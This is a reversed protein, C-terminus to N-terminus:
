SVAMPWLRSTPSWLSPSSTDQPKGQLVHGTLVHKCINIECFFKSLKNSWINYWAWFETMNFNEIIKQTILEQLFSFHFDSSSILALGWFMTFTLVESLQCCGVNNYHLSDLMTVSRYLIMRPEKIEEV